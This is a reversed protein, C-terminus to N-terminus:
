KDDDSYSLHNLNLTLGVPSVLYGCQADIPNGKRSLRTWMQNRYLKLRVSM